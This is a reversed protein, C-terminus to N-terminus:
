IIEIGKFQNDIFRFHKDRDSIEAVEMPWTINIRKDFVNVGGEAEPKYFTTHMYILETNDELTQFGHAIGEPLFIMKNNDSTLEIAFWQLFTPSGERIDIGVDFVRGKLCKIIKIEAYPSKQYHLGRIVGTKRTVSHNIQVIKKNNLLGNLENSCFLREFRGREDIFPEVEIVHIGAINTDKIKM